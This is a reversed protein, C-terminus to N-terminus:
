LVYYYIRWLWVIPKCIFIHIYKYAIKTTWCISSTAVLTRMNRIFFDSIIHSDYNLAVKKENVSIGPGTRGTTKLCNEKIDEETGEVDCMLAHLIMRLAHPYM